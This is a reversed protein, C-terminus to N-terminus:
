YLNSWGCSGKSLFYRQIDLKVQFMLLVFFGSHVNVNRLLTAQLQSFLKVGQVFVKNTCDILGEKAMAM